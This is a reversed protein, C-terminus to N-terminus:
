IINCLSLSWHCKKLCTTQCYFNLIFKIRLFWMLYKQSAIKFFYKWNKLVSLKICFLIILYNLGFHWIQTNLFQFIQWMQHWYGRSKSFVLNRLFSCFSSIQFWLHWIQTNKIYLKSFIYDYKLDAVRFKHFQSIEEM